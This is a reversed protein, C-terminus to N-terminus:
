TAITLTFPSYEFILEWGYYVAFGLLITAVKGYWKTPVGGINYQPLTQSCILLYFATCLLGIIFLFIFGIVAM